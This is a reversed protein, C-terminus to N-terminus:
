PTFLRIVGSIKYDWLGWSFKNKKTSAQLIVGTWCCHDCFIIGQLRVFFFFFFRNIPWSSALQGWNLGDRSDFSTMLTTQKPVAYSTDVFFIALCSSSYQILMFHCDLSICIVGGTCLFYGLKCSFMDGWKRRTTDLRASLQVKIQAPKTHEKEVM